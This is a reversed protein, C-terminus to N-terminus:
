ILYYISCLWHKEKIPFFIDTLIQADPCPISSAQQLAQGTHMLEPHSSLLATTSCALKNDGNTV